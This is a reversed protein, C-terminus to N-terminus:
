AAVEKLNRSLKRAMEDYLILGDLMVGGFTVDRGDQFCGFEPEQDRVRAVMMVQKESALFAFRAELSGPIDGPPLNEVADMDTTTEGPICVWSEMVIAHGLPMEGYVDRMQQMREEGLEYHDSATIESLVQMSAAARAIEERPHMQLGLRAPTLTLPGRGNEPETIMYLMVGVSDWGQEQHAQELRVLADALPRLKRSVKPADCSSAGPIISTM